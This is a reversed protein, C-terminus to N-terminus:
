IFNNINNIYQSSFFPRKIIKAKTYSIGPKHLKIYAQGWTQLRVLDIMVVITEM